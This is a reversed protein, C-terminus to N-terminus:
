LFAVAKGVLFGQLISVKHNLTISVEQNLNITIFIAAIGWLAALIKQQLNCAPWSPPFAVEILSYVSFDPLLLLHRGHLFM